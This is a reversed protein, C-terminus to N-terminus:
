YVHCSFLILVSMCDITLLSIVSQDQSLLHEATKNYNAVWMKHISCRSQDNCSKRLNPLSTMRDVLSLGFM